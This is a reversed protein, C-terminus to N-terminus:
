QLLKEWMESHKTCVADIRLNTKECIELVDFSEEDPSRGQLEPSVLCLKFEGKKLWEAHKGLFSWDGSFSDLWIWRIKLDNIEIPNENESLRLAVPLNALASKRLTPFPQDLFFYDDIEMDQLMKVVLSELGDEKVNLILTGHHFKKLWENLTEGPTFPDHALIIEGKFLRLDIEVGHNSPVSSLENSSNIRHRIIM